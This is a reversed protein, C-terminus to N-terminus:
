IVVLAPEQQHESNMGKCNVVAHQVLHTQLRTSQLTTSLNNEVTYFDLLAYIQFMKITFHISVYLRSHHRISFYTFSKPAGTCFCCHHLCTKTLVSCKPASFTVFVLQSAACM